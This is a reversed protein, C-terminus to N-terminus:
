RADPSEHSPSASRSAPKPVDPRPVIPGLVQWGDINVRATEWTLGERTSAQPKPQCIGPPSDKEAARLVDVGLPRAERNRFIHFPQKGVVSAACEPIIKGNQALDAVAAVIYGAGDQIGLVVSHWMVPGSKINDPAAPITDARAEFERRGQRRDPHGIKKARSGRRLCPTFSGWAQRWGGAPIQGFHQPPQRALSLARLPLDSANVGVGALFERCHHM